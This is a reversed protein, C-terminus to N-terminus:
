PMGGETVLQVWSVIQQPQKARGIEYESSYGVWLQSRLLLAGGPAKGDTDDRADVLHEDGDCAIEIDIVPVGPRFIRIGNVSSM